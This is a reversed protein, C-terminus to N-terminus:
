KEGVLRSARETEPEPWGKPPCVGLSLPLTVEVVPAVVMWGPWTGTTISMSSSSVSVGARGIGRRSPGSARSSASSGRRTTAVGGPAWAPGSGGRPPQRPALALGEILRGLLDAVGDGGVGRQGVQRALHQHLLRGLPQADLQHIGLALRHEGQAAGRRVLTRPCQQRADCLHRRPQGVRDGDGAM